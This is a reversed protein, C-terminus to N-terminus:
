TAIEFDDSAAYLNLYFTFGDMSSLSLCSDSNCSLLSNALANTESSAVAINVARYGCYTSNNQDQSMQDDFM